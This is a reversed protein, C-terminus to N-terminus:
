GLVSCDMGTPLMGEGTATCVSSSPRNLLTGGGVASPVCVWAARPARLDDGTRLAGCGEGAAWCQSCGAHLVM